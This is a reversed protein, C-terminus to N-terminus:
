ATVKRIKPLERWYKPLALVSKRTEAGSPTANGLLNRLQWRKYLPDFWLVEPIESSLRSQCGGDRVWLFWSLQSWMTHIDWFDKKEGFQERPIAVHLCLYWGRNKPQQHAASTWGDDRYIQDERYASTQEDSHWHPTDIGCIPCAFTGQPEEAEERPQKTMVKKRRSTM